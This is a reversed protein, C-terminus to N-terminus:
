RTAQELIGSVTSKHPLIALEYATAIIADTYERDLEQVAPALESFPILSKHEPMTKNRWVSWADHVDILQTNPGKTLVLLVYLDLLDSEM